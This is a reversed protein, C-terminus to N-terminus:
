VAPTWRAASHVTDGAVLWASPGANRDVHLRCPTGANIPALYEMEGVGVREGTLVEEVIPWHHANNVHGLVDVDVVRIPWPGVESGAPPGPLRLRTSVRRHGAAEGYVRDFTGDLTAPRGSGADIQIWLSVAEVAGGRDGTISTRREAWCRGTGSCFTTLEVHEGLVAPSQVDILTRRVVWAFREDLGAAAADDSAVDQLFRAIADLRLRARADVDAHQVPRAATFRRGTARVPVLETAPAVTVAHTSTPDKDHSL